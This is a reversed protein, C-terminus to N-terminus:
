VRALLWDRLGTPLLRRGGEMLLAPTTVRYRARPRPHELARILKATVASAPLEFRDPGRSEYLRKLLTARYQEVRASAQWDIWREFRPISNERIRSTVPGPEILIVRVGTDRMELRLVDSLGELAHKTAVYAGRWKLGTYGLVSSNMVIRGAGQARMAPIVARTLAHTGFLNVEFIERLAGAPLDEVAGPIAFAGNNFLADLTGGTRRLAEALGAEISGEDSLDLAFSEFGEARLRACDGEARCTAFVRWGRARLGGAADYGIGSSCGTILVSKGAANGNM